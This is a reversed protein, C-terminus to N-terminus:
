TFFILQSLYLCSTSATRPLRERGVGEQALVGGLSSRVPLDRKEAWGCLDQVRQEYSSDVFIEKRSWVLVTESM